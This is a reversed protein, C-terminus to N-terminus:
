EGPYMSCAGLLPWSALGCLPSPKPQLSHEMLSFSRPSLARPCARPMPVERENETKPPKRTGTEGAYRSSARRTSTCHLTETLPSPRKALSMDHVFSVCPGIAGGLKALLVANDFRRTKSLEFGVGLGSQPSAGHSRSPAQGMYGPSCYRVQSSKAQEVAVHLSLLVAELRM